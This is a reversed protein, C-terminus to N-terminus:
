DHRLVRVILMGGDRRAQHYTAASLRNGDGDSVQIRWGGRRMAHKQKGRGPPPMAAGNLFFNERVHDHLLQLTSAPCLLFTRDTPDAADWYVVATTLRPQM